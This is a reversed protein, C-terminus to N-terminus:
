QALLLKLVFRLFRLFELLSKAKHEEILPEWKNM